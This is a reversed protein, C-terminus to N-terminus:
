WYNKKGKSHPQNHRKLNKNSIKAFVRNDKFVKEYKQITPQTKNNKKWFNETCDPKYSKFISFVPHCWGFIYDTRMLKKQEIYYGGGPASGLTREMEITKGYDEEGRPWGYLPGCCPRHPRCSGCAIQDWSLRCHWEKNDSSIYTGRSKMAQCFVENYYNAYDIAPICGTSTLLYLVPLTCVLTTLIATTKAVKQCCEKKKNVTALELETDNNDKLSFSKGQDNELSISPNELDKLEEEKPQQVLSTQNNQPIELSEPRESAFTLSSIGLFLFLSAIKIMM